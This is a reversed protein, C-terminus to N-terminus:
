VILLNMKTLTVFYSDDFPRRYTKGSRGESLTDKSCVVILVERRKSPCSSGDYNLLEVYM